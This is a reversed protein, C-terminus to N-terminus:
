LDPSYTQLYRRERLGSGHVNYFRELMGSCPYALVKGETDYYITTLATSISQNVPRQLLFVLLHSLCGQM